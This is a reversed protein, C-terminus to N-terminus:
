LVEDLLKKYICHWSPCESTEMSVVGEEEKM